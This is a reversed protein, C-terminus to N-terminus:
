KDPTLAPDCIWGELPDCHQPIGYDPRTVAWASQVACLLADLRDATPDAILQDPLGPPMTLSIHYLQSLRNSLLGNVLKYRAAERAATQKASDDSKYSQKQIFARAVLAPYAEIAIRSDNGPHNPLISVGSFLLRPAGQFFMKGVPVGALMMPSIAGALADTTRLHHKDGAPRARRYDRIATEFATKGQRAVQAVYAAWSVPWGLNTLLRRPQGFPFDFGAVWPGGTHLFAEFQVFDTLQHLATIELKNGALWAEVWVIPKGPRPASTFDVGYVKM